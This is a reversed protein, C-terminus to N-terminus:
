IVINDKILFDKFAREPPRGSYPEGTQISFATAKVMTLYPDEITIKDRIKLTYRRNNKELVIEAENRGLGCLLPQSLPTGGQYLLSRM